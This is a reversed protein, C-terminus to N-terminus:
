SVLTTTLVPPNHCSCWSAILNNRLCIKGFRCIPVLVQQLTKYELMQNTFWTRWTVSKYRITKCFNVNTILIGRSCSSAASSINLIIKLWVNKEVSNSTYESWHRLLLWCTRSHLVLCTRALHKEGDNNKATEVDGNSQWCSRGKLRLTHFNFQLGIKKRTIYDGPISVNAGCVKYQTSFSM